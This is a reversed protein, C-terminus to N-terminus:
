DARLRGAVAFRGEGRPTVVLMEAPDLGVGTLASITSGHSVLVRTGGARPQGVEAQMLRVQEDRKEPRGFLNGLAVWPEAAGFALRATELCRCWPSSRVREVAIGRARFAEGVRRADRRGEETLNRQTACDDLRMGPPDGVGSTTVAHRILVVQGGQALLAWLGEDAGASAPVGASWILGLILALTARDM